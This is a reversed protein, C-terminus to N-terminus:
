LKPFQTNAHSESIIRILEDSAGPEYEKPILNLIRQQEEHTIIPLLAEEDGINKESEDIIVRIHTDPPIYKMKEPLDRVKTIIEM